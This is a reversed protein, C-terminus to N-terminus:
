CNVISVMQQAKETHALCTDPAKLFLFEIKQGDQLTIVREENQPHSSLILSCKGFSIILLIKDRLQSGTMYPRLGETQCEPLRGGNSRQTSVLKAFQALKRGWDIIEKKM